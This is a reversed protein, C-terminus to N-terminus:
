LLYHFDNETTTDRVLQFSVQISTSFEKGNIVEGVAKIDITIAGEEKIVFKDHYDAKRGHAYARTFAQKEETTGLTLIPLANSIFLMYIITVFNREKVAEKSDKFAPNLLKVPVIISSFIYM